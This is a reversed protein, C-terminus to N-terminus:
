LAQDCSVRVTIECWNMLRRLDDTSEDKVITRVVGDWSTKFSEQSLSLSALEAKVTLCLFLDVPAFDPSYSPHRFMKGCNPSCSQPMLISQSQMGVCFGTRPCCDPSKRCSFQWPSPRLSRSASKM